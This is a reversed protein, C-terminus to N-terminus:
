TERSEPEKGEKSEARCDTWAQRDDPMGIITTYLPVFIGWLSQLPFTLALQSVVALSDFAARCRSM